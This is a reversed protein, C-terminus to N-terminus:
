FWQGDVYYWSGKEKAFTSREHHVQAKLDSDLYHAKFEVRNESSNLIELKVWQNAAAFTQTEIKSHMKRTSFHTTEMLYNIAQVCYTAYRSRMLTEATPAKLNGNIYPQCCSKFLKESNCYCNM